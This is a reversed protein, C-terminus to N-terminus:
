RSFRARLLQVAREYSAGIPIATGAVTVEQRAIKEVKEVAVIYSRHVRVFYPAPLQRLADAPTQRMLVRRTPLVYTLYNGDAELYLIDHLRLREEEYGTKVLISPSSASGRATQRELARACAKTFRALSFPKLLYDVADLEFGQVAYDSYATTFIILPARSLGQVLEVGTLDPMHIDVFLVDMPHAQLFALATFAPSLKDEISIM